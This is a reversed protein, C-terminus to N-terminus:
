VGARGELMNLAAISKERAETARGVADTVAFCFTAFEVRSTVVLPAGDPSFNIFNHSTMMEIISLMHFLDTVMSDLREFETHVDSNLSSAQSSKEATSCAHANMSNDKESTKTSVPEVPHRDKDPRKTSTKM